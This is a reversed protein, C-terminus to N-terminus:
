KIYEKPNKGAYFYYISKAIEYDYATEKDKATALTMNNLADLYTINDVVGAEFKQLIAHYNSRTAKLRSQTSKRKNQLTELRKKAITFYMKQERSAHIKESEAVLKRVRLAEAEHKIRGGDFLRVGVSLTLKNEEELMMQSPDFGIVSKTDDFRSRRYTDSINVQPKYGAEISDVGKQIIHSQLSLIKTKEYPELRVGRPERFHSYTLGNIHIGTLLWLNERSEMLALTTSAITYDNEDFEAQLKDVDESTALGSDVFKKVRNMQAQLEHSQEGLAHLYAELKFVTYYRNVIELTLSKAFADREFKTVGKELMKGELLANKRGGDYLEYGLTVGGSWVIGPSTLSNPSANLHSAFIDLTPMFASEKALVEANKAKIELEKARLQYNNKDANKILYGLNYGQSWVMIPLLVGFLIKM